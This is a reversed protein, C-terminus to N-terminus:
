CHAAARWKGAYEALSRTAPGPTRQPASTATREMRTLLAAGIIPGAPASVAAEVPRETAAVLMDLYFRNGALPGEVVTPGDAGALELCRATALALHFAVAVFRAEDDILASPRNWHPKCDRDAGAREPDTPLLMIAEDLVRAIAADGIHHPRAEDVMLAHERGAALEFSPVPHGLADISAFGEGAPDLSELSGGPALISIGAETSVVAFPGVHGLLHPLLAANGAHLGVHVPVRPKLGLTQCLETSVTGLVDAAPRVEPMRDLWGQRLVLSSYLDTELNWLDTRWGLSSIESAATDTLRFGWYQPFPLVWRTAAFEAPFVRSQWYLQAGLNRGAPLRPAFTETFRPRLADYERALTEPAAYLPDLVPLALAGSGDVLAATAGMTTVCLADIPHLRNLEEVSSVLFQWIGDVALHAYPYEAVIEVPQRRKDIITRSEVDVVAFTATARTIHLVGAIRTAM